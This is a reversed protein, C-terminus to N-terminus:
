EEFAHAINFLMNAKKQWVMLNIYCVLWRNRDYTDPDQFKGDPNPEVGLQKRKSVPIQLFTDKVEREVDSLINQWLKAKQENDTMKKVLTEKL